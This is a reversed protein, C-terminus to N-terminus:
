AWSMWETPSDKYGSFSKCPYYTVSHLHNKRSLWGAFGISEQNCVWLPLIVYPCHFLWKLSDVAQKHFQKNVFWNLRDRLPFQKNVFWDFRDRLPFLRTQKHFWDVLILEQPFPSGQPNSAMRDSFCPHISIWALTNASTATQTTCATSSLLDIWLSNTGNSAVDFLAFM